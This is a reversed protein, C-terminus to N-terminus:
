GRTCIQLTGPMGQIAHPWLSLQYRGSHPVEYRGRGDVTEVDDSDRPGVSVMRDDNTIWTRRGNSNLTQGRARIVLTQGEMFRGNFLFARGSYVWCTAGRAFRIEVIQRRQASADSPMAGVATTAALAAALMVTRYM